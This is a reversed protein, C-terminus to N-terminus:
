AAAEARPLDVAVVLGSRDTRLRARVQGGIAEVLGRAISLGLGTGPTTERSSASRFFKEFIKELEAEPVGPGEDAVQIRVCDGGSLSVRVTSGDPSFRLANEVVNGLAQELLVPDGMATLEGHAADRALVRGGRRREMRAMLQDVVEVVNFPAAKPALGGGELRTMNLLNAVFLNLREAEEQITDTLDARVEPPFRDGFERLSSASALIAALPTRLDHSISSLLANRLQETRVSAKAEAQAATLRARMIATAGQDVLVSVLQMEEAAAPGDGGHPRWAAVGLVVEASRLPRARWAGAELTVPAHSMARSALDLADILLPAPAAVEDDSMVAEVGDWIVADGKAAEALRRALRERVEAEQTTSAFDRSAELLAATTRARAQARRAEDRVRGALGGTLMAVILFVTLVIVDEPGAFVLTFRPECLYFNYVVFALGAAFYAPGSGLWVAAMLVGALFIMSLRTTELTRYLMEAVGTSAVVVAFAALYRRWGRLNRLENLSV